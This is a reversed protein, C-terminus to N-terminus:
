KKRKAKKGKGSDAERARKAAAPLLRAARRIISERRPSGPPGAHGRLKLASSASKKDKIPFKDRGGEKYTAHAKRGRATITGKKTRFAGNKKKKAM